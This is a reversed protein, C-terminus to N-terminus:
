LSPETDSHHDPPLECVQESKVPPLVLLILLTVAEVITVCLGGEIGFAGGTWLNMNEAATASFVSGEMTGTGSVSIGYINGQYYNWFTHMACAGLISGRKLFYVAFVLGSLFLNLFALPCIGPNALHLVAFVLSSLLVCIWVPTNRSLSVLFYGRCLVEESMGQVVFGALFLLLLVPDPAAFRVTYAGTLMGIVTAATIMLIGAAGGLIYEPIGRRFGMSAATRKEVKTCYLMVFLITLGTSFLSLLNLWAPMEQILATVEQPSTQFTGSMVAERNESLLWYVIGATLPVSSARNCVIFLIAFILIEMIQSHPPKSNKAETLMKPYGLLKNM